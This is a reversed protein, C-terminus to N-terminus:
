STANYSPVTNVLRLRAGAAGVGCIVFRLVEAGARLKDAPRAPLDATQQGAFGM